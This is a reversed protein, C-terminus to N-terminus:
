KRLTKLSRINVKKVSAARLSAKSAKTVKASRVKASSTMGLNIEIYPIQDYWGVIQRSTPDYCVLGLDDSVLSGSPDPTFQIDNNGNLSYTLIYYTVGQTSTYVGIVDGVEAYFEGTVYNCALAIESGESILNTIYLTDASYDEINVSQSLYKKSRASYYIATKTGLLDDKTFVPGGFYKWWMTKESSAFVKNGNGNIDQIVGAKVNVFIEDGAAPAEPLTFTLTNGSISWEDPDLSINVTKKSNKYTLSIDGSKVHEDSGDFENRYVNYAFTMTGKFTKYDAILMGPEQTFNKTTIDWSKLPLRRYVGSVGEETFETNTAPCKNGFNDVFAGETWSYLVYAGAPVNNVAFYVKNGSSVVTIDDEPIPILSGDGYVQYYSASITGEGIMVEESFTVTTITDTESTPDTATYPMLVPVEGDTTTVELSKVAGIVGQASTAVAYVTYTTNPECLPQNKTDRMNVTVSSAKAYEIIGQEVSGSLTNKLVAEASVSTSAKGPVVTYSYFNSGEAPKVTFTFTSDTTTTLSLDVTPGAAYTESKEEDFSTCSTMGILAIALSYILKKM